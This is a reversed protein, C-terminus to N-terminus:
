ENTTDNKELTYVLDWRDNVISPSHTAMIVQINQLKAIKFLDNLFDRQWTIHLSIEPEDILILTNPKINFILEYLIIIQHQEGSSLQELEIEKDNANKIYFGKEKSIHISKYSFRRKNLITTFLDLKESLEDFTKLKQELDNIYVLFVKANEQSYEVNKQKSEYLGLYRLKEQKETLIHIRTTYEQESIMNKEKILRDLYSSELAQTELFSKQINEVIMDKLEKAYLKITEVMLINEETKEIKKLLRQHEIFYTKFPYLFENLKKTEEKQLRSSITEVRFPDINSYTAFPTNKIEKYDNNTIYGFVLAKDENNNKYFKFIVSNFKPYELQREIV